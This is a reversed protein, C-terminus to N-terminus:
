IMAGPSADFEHARRLSPIKAAASLRGAGKGTAPGRARLRFGTREPRFTTLQARHFGAWSVGGSRDRLEVARDNAEILGSGFAHEMDPDARALSRSYDLGAGGIPEPHSHLARKRDGLGDFGHLVLQEVCLLLRQECEHTRCTGSVGDLEPECCQGLSSPRSETVS